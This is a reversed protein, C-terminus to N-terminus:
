NCVGERKYQSRFWDTDRASNKKMDNMAADIQKQIDNVKNTYYNEERRAGELIKRSSQLQENAERLEALLNELKKKDAMLAVGTFAM